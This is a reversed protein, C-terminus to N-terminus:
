FFSARSGYNQLHGLNGLLGWLDPSGFLYVILYYTKAAVVTGFFLIPAWDQRIKSSLPM